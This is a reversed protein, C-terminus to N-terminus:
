LDLAGLSDETVVSTVPPLEPKRGLAAKTTRQKRPKKESPLPLPKKPESGVLGSLMSRMDALQRKSNLLETISGIMEENGPLEPLLEIILDQHTKPLGLDNLVKRFESKEM